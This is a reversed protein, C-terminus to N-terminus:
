FYHSILFVFGVISPLQIVILSLALALGFNGESFYINLNSEEYAGGFLDICILIVGLIPIFYLNKM